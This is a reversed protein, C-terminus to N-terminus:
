MERLRLYRAVFPIGMVAVCAAVVLVLAKTMRWIM